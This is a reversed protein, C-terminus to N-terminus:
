IFNTLQLILEDNKKYDKKKFSISYNIVEPVNWPEDNEVLKNKGKGIKDQYLEMLKM